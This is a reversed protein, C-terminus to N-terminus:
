QERLWQARRGLRDDPHVPHVDGPQPSRGDRRPRAQFGLADATQTITVNLPAMYMEKLIEGPHAPGHMRGSSEIITKM